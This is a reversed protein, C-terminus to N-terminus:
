GFYSSYDGGGLLDTYDASYPASEGALSGWDESGLGGSPLNSADIGSSNDTGGSFQNILKMIEQPNKIGAAIFLPALQSFLGPQAKARTGMETGTM